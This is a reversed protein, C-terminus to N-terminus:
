TMIDCVMTDCAMIDCTMTDFTMTDCTMAYWLCLTACVTQRKDNMKLKFKAKWNCPWKIKKGDGRM